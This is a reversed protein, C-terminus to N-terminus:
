MHNTRTESSEEWKQEWNRTSIWWKTVNQAFQEKKIKIKKVNQKNM